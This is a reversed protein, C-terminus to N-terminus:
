KESSTNPSERCPIKTSRVLETIQNYKNTSTTTQYSLIGMIHPVFFCFYLLTGHIQSTHARGIDVLGLCM